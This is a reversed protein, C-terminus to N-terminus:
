RGLRGLVARVHELADPDPMGSVDNFYLGDGVLQITRALSEDGLEARLVELWGERVQALAARVPDTNEQALRAAAVLARDLESGESVSTQLYFEVPGVPSTRMQETDARALELLRELVGDVLDDKSAFHYLLGGKSVGAEAAVAELTAARPGQEVLLTEFADLLRDRTSREPSTM